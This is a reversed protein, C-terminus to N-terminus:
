DSATAGIGQGWALHTAALDDTIAVKMEYQMVQEHNAAMRNEEAQAALTQIALFFWSRTTLVDDCGGSQIKKKKGISLGLDKYDSDSLAQLTEMTIEEETFKTVLEALGSFM